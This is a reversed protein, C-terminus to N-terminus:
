INCISLSIGSDSMKALRGGSMNTSYGSVDSSISTSLDATM